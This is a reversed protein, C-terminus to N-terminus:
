ISKRHNGFKGRGEQLREVMGDYDKCLLISLRYFESGFFRCRFSNKESVVMIGEDHGPFFDAQLNEIFIEVKEIIVREVKVADVGFHEQAFLCCDGFFCQIQKCGM